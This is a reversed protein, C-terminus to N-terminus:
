IDDVNQGDLSRERGDNHPEYKKLTEIHSHVFSSQSSVTGFEGHQVLDPHVLRQVQRTYDSFLNWSYYYRFVSASLAAPISPLHSSFQPYQAGKWMHCDINWGNVKKGCEGFEYFFNCQCPHISKLQFHVFYSSWKRRHSCSSGLLPSANYESNTKM